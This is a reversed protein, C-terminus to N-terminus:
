LASRLSFHAVHIHFSYSRRISSHLDRSGTGAEFVLMKARCKEFGAYATTRIKQLKEDCSITMADDRILSPLDRRAKAVVDVAAPRNHALAAKADCPGPPPGPVAPLKVWSTMAM